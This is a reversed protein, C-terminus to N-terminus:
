KKSNLLAIIENKTSAATVPLGLSTAVEFLQSKTWTAEWVPQPVAPVKDSSVSDQTAPNVVDNSDEVEREVVPEPEEVQAQEVLSAVAPEDQAQPQSQSSVESHHPKGALRYLSAPM